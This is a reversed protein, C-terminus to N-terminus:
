LTRQRLHGHLGVVSMRPTESVHSSSMTCIDPINFISADAIGATINQMSLISMSSTNDITLLVEHLPVCENKSVTIRVTSTRPGASSPLFWTDAKIGVYDHTGMYTAGAPVCSNDLAATLNSKFCQGDIVTYTMKQNFDEYITMTYVVSANTLVMENVVKKLDYDVHLVSQIDAVSAYNGIRDYVGLKQSIQGEWKNFWCCPTQAEVLGCVVLLCVVTAPGAFSMM